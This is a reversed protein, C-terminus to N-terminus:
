LGDEQLKFEIAYLPCSQFQNNVIYKYMTFVSACDSDPKLAIRNDTTHKGIFVDSMFAKYNGNGAEMGREDEIYHKPDKYFNLGEQYTVLYNTTTGMKTLGCHLGGIMEEDFGLSQFMLERRYNPLSVRKQLMHIFKEMLYKNQIRDIRVVKCKDSISKLFMNSIKRFEQSSEPVRIEAYPKKQQQDWYDPYSVSGKTAKLGIIGDLIEAKIEEVFILFEETKQDFPGPITVSTRDFEAKLKLSDAKEKIKDMMEPEIDLIEIDERDMRTRLVRQSNRPSRSASRFSQPSKSRPSRAENSPKLDLTPKPKNPKPQRTEKSPKEKNSQVEKTPPKVEKNTKTLEQCYDTMKKITKQPGLLFFKDGKIEYFLGLLKVREEINERESKLIGKLEVEQQIFEDEKKEETKNSKSQNKDSKHNQKEKDNQAEMGKNKKSLYTKFAEIKDPNGLVIVEDREVQCILGMELGKSEIEQAQKWLNATMPLSKTVSEDLDALRKNHPSLKEEQMKNEPILEEKHELKIQKTPADIFESPAERKLSTETVIEKPKPKPEEHM